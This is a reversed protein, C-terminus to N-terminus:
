IYGICITAIETTPYSTYIDVMRNGRVLLIFRIFVPSFGLGKLICNAKGNLFVHVTYVTSWCRFFHEEKIPYPIDECIETNYKILMYILRLDIGNAKNQLKIKCLVENM